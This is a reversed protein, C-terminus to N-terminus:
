AAKKLLEGAISGRMIAIRWYHLNLLPLMPCILISTATIFNSPFSSNKQCYTSTVNSSSHQLFLVTKEVNQSTTSM